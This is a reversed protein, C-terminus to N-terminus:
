ECEFSTLVEMHRKAMKEITYLHARRISNEGMQACKMHDQGSLMESLVEGLAKADGPAVLYGNEGERVLELGAICRTTTVIPLGAAMAENVVLGWIDERTPLVFCDAARYWKRLEDKVMFPVFHVNSLAHDRVFSLYAETPEGGVIYIGIDSPMSRAAELLVDFGKRYIFQGVSIVIKRESIGLSARLVRKEEETAPAKVIEQERVSSFPYKYIKERPIGLSMLYRVHEDCTTFHGRAPCLLSKKVLRKLISDTQFFGGDSETFYPIHHRKCYRILTMVSPSAYGSIILYDFMEQKLVRVLGRGISRDEGFPTVEAYLERFGFAGKGRWLANRNTASKREFCVILDCLGGLENFFDVRYPSPLNTVFLIKM